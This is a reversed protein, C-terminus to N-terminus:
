VCANFCKVADAITQGYRMYVRGLRELALAHNETLQLAERYAMEAMPIEANREHLLGKFALANARLANNYPEQTVITVTQMALDYAETDKRIMAIRLLAEGKIDQLSSRAPTSEVSTTSTLRKTAEEICFVYGEFAKTYDKNETEALLSENFRKRLDSHNM